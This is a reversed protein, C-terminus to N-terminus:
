VPRETDCLAIRHNLRYCPQFDPVVVHQTSRNDWMALTGNEWHLRCAFMPKKLHDFLFKLIVQSEDEAMGVIQSTVMENVFLSKRGTEPHTRVIPHEVPPYHEHIRVKMKPDEMGPALKGFNASLDHIAKLGDLMNRMPESLAYYAAECNIWMTDGGADPMEIGYLLSGKSPIEVFTDDAHMNVDGSVQNQMTYEQKKIDPHSELRPISGGGQPEGFYKAVRVHDDPTLTQGRFFLVQYHVWAQSIEKITKDDLDKSLDLGEIYAGIHGTMPKATFTTFTPENERKALVEYTM